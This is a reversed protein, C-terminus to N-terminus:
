EVAADTAAILGDTGLLAAEEETTLIRLAGVSQTPDEIVSDLLTQYHRALRRMTQPEFLDADYAFLGRVEGTPHEWLVASLDFWTAGTEVELAAVELGPIEVRSLPANQLSFLVQVLPTRGGAREAQLADVIKDFPVEQHSYADLVERRVRALLDLFSPNKALDARLPLTNVFCGVVSKLGTRTRGAVPCGIVFDSADTYRHVLVEFAALLLMFLSAGQRRALAALREKLAARLTFWEWGGRRQARATRPRDAPLSLTHPAGRLRDLWYALQAKMEASAIWDRQWRAYAYYDTSAPPVVRGDDAGRARYLEALERLIIGVSWQDCVIHHITLAVVWEGDGMAFVRCRLPPEAELDFPRKAEDDLLRRLAARPDAASPAGESHLAVRPKWAPVVTQIPEGDQVAFVTRLIPHRDVLKQLCCELLAVDLPGRVQLAIPVHYAVDAPAFQHMFWMRRQAMSLPASAVSPGSPEAPGDMSAAHARSAALAEIREALARLVGYSYIEDFELKIGWRAEIDNMMQIATLSNGGLEFYDDDVRVHAIDLSACWISALALQTPTLEEAHHVAPPVASAPPRPVARRPSEIWCRQLELPPPPLAVRRAPLTQYFRAWDIDCGHRYLDALITLLPRTADAGIAHLVPGAVDSARAAEGIEGGGALEVLVPLGKAEIARLATHLKDLNLPERSGETAQMRGLAEAITLRGSVCDVVHHGGGSALLVAAKVGLSGLWRHLSLQFAFRRPADLRSLGRRAVEAACSEWTSRFTPFRAALDAIREDGLEADGSFCAAVIRAERPNSEVANACRTDSLEKLARALEAKSGVILVARVPWADRGRNLVHAIDPLDAATDPLASALRRCTETLATRSRASLTVLVEPCGDAGSRHPPSPEEVVLHANTGTLGFASVGVRRLGKETPWLRPETNVFVPSRDFDILPNPVEFHLSPLVVGHEISLVAKVLGAIGAATDLHGINTKVSGIACSPQDDAAEGFAARIAQIEVPDGLRTGTGHAEICALTRPDIGARRWAARLVEAQAAPSPATMGNSQGGDQNVAGGKIVARICDGDALAEEIRRLVLIAGGEGAGTGDARADFAKTLGDSSLVEVSAAGDQDPSFTAHLRVGGTIVRDAEGSALRRCSDLVAVLASSCATDVVLAPGRLDLLYSIRGAMAAPLNGTVATAHLQSLLRAYTSPSAALVVATNTGRLERLSYGANWIALCTLQLAWRHQPDMADAERKSLRFLEPDFADVGGVTAVPLLKVSPDLGSDLRREPPVPGVCCVGQRLLRYFAELDNGAGPFLGAMGVIAIREDQAPTGPPRSM